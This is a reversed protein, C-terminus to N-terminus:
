ARPRSDIPTPAAAELRAGTLLHNALAPNGYAHNSLLDMLRAIHEREDAALRRFASSCEEHGEAAADHEYVGYLATLELKSRLVSVLNRLTETGRQEAQIDRLTRAM